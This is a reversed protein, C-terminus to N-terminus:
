ELTMRSGSVTGSGCLSPSGNLFSVIIKFNGSLQHHQVALEEFLDANGVYVGMGDFLLKRFHTKFGDSSGATWVGHGESGNLHLTTSLSNANLETNTEEMTGGNAYTALEVFPPPGPFIVAPDACLSVTPAATVNINWTGVLGERAEQASSTMAFCPLLIM